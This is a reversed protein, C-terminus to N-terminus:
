SNLRTSKRDARGVDDPLDAPRPVEVRPIPDRSGGNGDRGRIERDRRPEPPRRIWRRIVTSYAPTRPLQTHHRVSSEARGEVLGIRHEGLDNTRESVVVSFPVMRGRDETRTQRLDVYVARQNRLILDSSCVDSSW